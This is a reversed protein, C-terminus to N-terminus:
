PMEHCIIRTAEIGNMGPMNIDMLILDPHLEHTLRVAQKGDAAEGVVEMGLDHTLVSRVGDRIIGHDDAILVRVNRSSNSM